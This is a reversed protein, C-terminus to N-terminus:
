TICSNFSYSLGLEVSHFCTKSSESIVKYDNKYNLVGVIVEIVLVYAGTNELKLSSQNGQQKGFLLLLLRLKCIVLM